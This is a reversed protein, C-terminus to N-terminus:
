RALSHKFPSEAFAAFIMSTGNYALGTNRIKFGNSTIDVVTSTDEVASLNPFLAGGQVNYGPRKADVLVWDGTSDTRKMLIFAPRFGCFVFPGDTSANGVYSGMRSFGAVESFLYAVYNQSTQNTVGYDAADGVTFTTSTGLRLRTGGNAQALTSDLILNFGTALSTHAVAWNQVASRNKVIIMSPTVGLNHAITRSATSNGTYTVIDFGQTPGEKWTWAVASGGSPSNNANDNTGLTFGDSNFATLTNPDTNEANTNNSQLRKEIGRVSDYLDHNYAQDRRKTWVFDPAFALGSIVNVSDNSTFLKADFFQNGKLITPTPLNQTNLARFGTPPTYAFPRQGFNAQFVDAVANENDVVPVYEISTSPLSIAGQSVNNRYFTCTNASYDLAIGIVDNAAYATGYGSATGNVIKNGASKYYLVCNSGVASIGSGGFRYAADVIGIATFVSTSTTPTVEWYFKDGSRIAMTGRVGLISAVSAALTVRLNGNDVTNGQATLPNMVCYNGRGNGGDAWQTPVDLMSDYTVGATVSINNPTWNNGNGSYDKGITAATNNSNDSFNLYFGNTGYTGTYKRPQWVGTFQNTEGFSSPTLAQGDIFNIETLYGDFHQNSGTASRGINHANVSNFMTDYNQTPYTASGYAVETGNVYIRVRNASTAQTTDVAVIIHYWSSPDRYVAVTPVVGANNGDLQLRLVDNTGGGTLHIANDFTTGAASFLLM